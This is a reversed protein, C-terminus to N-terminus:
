IFVAARRLIIGGFAVLGLVVGWKLINMGRQRWIPDGTMRSMVVCLMFGLGLGLVLFRLLAVM